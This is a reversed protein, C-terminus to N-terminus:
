RRVFLADGWGKSVGDVWDIDVFDFEPALAAHIEHFLPADRYLEIISVECYILRIGKLTETAGRLVELEYGQVDLVLTDFGLLGFSDLTRVEVDIAGDFPFQPYAALHGTPELLSCCQLSASLNLSARGARSGLAVQHVALGKSAIEAAKEPVPEFWVSPANWRAYWWAESGDYGGVHIVGRPLGCRPAYHEILRM